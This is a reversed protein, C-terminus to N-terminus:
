RVDPDPPPPSATRTLPGIRCLGGAHQVDNGNDEGAHRVSDDSDGADANRALCCCCCGLWGCCCDPARTPYCGWRPPPLPDSTPAGWGAAVVPDAAAAGRGMLRLRVVAEGESAAVVLGTEPSTTTTAAPASGIALGCTTPGRDRRRPAAGRDSLALVAAMARSPPCQPPLHRRRWSGRLWGGARLCRVRSAPSRRWVRRWCAGGSRTRPTCARTRPPPWDERQPRRSADNRGSRPRLLRTTGSKTMSGHQRRRRKRTGRVSSSRPRGRPNQERKLQKRLHKVDAQSGHLARRMSRM